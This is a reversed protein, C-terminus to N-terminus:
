DDLNALAFRVQAARTATRKPAAERKRAVWTANTDLARKADKYHKKASKRKAAKSKALIHQDYETLNDM